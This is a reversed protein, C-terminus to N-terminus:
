KAKRFIDKIDKESWGKRKFLEKIFKDSYGKKRSENVLYSAEKHLGDVLNSKANGFTSSIDRESWRKKRLLTKVQEDSYKEHHVGKLLGTLYEGLDKLGKKHEIKKLKKPSIPKDPFPKRLYVLYFLFSSILSLILVGIMTSFLNSFNSRGSFAFCRPCNDGGCDIGTEDFNREGDYCHDCYDGLESVVFGVDIRQINYAETKKLRSILIEKEADFIEVYDDGCWERKEAKIPLKLDCEKREIKNDECKSFDECIRQREGKILLNGEILDGVDYAVKEGCKSWGSCVWLSDCETLTENTKNTVNGLLSDEELDGESTPFVNIDESLSFLVEPTFSYGKGFSDVCSTWFKHAGESPEFGKYLAYRPNILPMSVGKQSNYIDSIESDSFAKNWIAVEDIYGDPNNSNFEGVRIKSNVLINPNHNTIHVNEGNIYLKATGDPNYNLVLNVWNGFFTAPNFQYNGESAGIKYYIVNKDPKNYLYNILFGEDDDVSLTRVIGREYTSQLNKFDFWLSVSFGKGYATNIIEETEVYNVNISDGFFERSGKIKGFNSPKINGVSKAHNNNGSFDNIVNKNEGYSVENNLHYLLVLDDEFGSNGEFLDGFESDLYFLCSSLDRDSSVSFDISSDLPYASNLPSILKLKLPVSSEDNPLEIVGKESVELFHTEWDSGYDQNGEYFASINYVGVNYFILCNEFDSDKRDLLEGDLYLTRYGVGKALHVGLCVSTGNEVKLDSRSHNIFSYIEGQPNDVVFYRIGSTNKFLPTGSGDAKWYYSHTDESLDNILFQYKGGGLNTAAYNKNDFVIGVNGSTQSVFVNFYYKGGVSYGAGSEPNESYGYFVPYVDGVNRNKIDVFVEDYWCIAQANDLVGAGSPNKLNCHLQLKYVGDQNIRYSIDLNENKWSNWTKSTDRWVERTRGDPRELLIFMDHIEPENEIYSKRWNFNIWVDDGLNINDISKILYEGQWDVGYGPDNYGKLSGSGESALSNDIVYNGELNGGGVTWQSLDSQSNFHGLDYLTFGTIKSLNFPYNLFLVFGFIIAILLFSIVRSLFSHKSDGSDKVRGKKKLKKLTKEGFGVYRTVVKNGVRKSEYLYPGYLKDGKKVYKKYVM